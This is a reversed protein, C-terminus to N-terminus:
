YELRRFQFRNGTPGSGLGLHYLGLFPVDLYFDTFGASIDYLGEDEPDYEIQSYSSGYFPGLKFETTGDRDIHFYNM